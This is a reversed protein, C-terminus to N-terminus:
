GQQILRMKFTNREGHYYATSYEVCRDDATYAKTKVYLIVAPQEMHLLSQIEEDALRAEVVRDVYAIKCQYREDTALIQLQGYTYKGVSVVNIPFRNM